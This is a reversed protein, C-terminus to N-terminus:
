RPQPRGGCPKCPNCPQPRCGCPQPRCGCPKCPQPRCGCHDDDDEEEFYDCNAEAEAIAMKLGNLYGELEEIEEAIKYASEKIEHLAKKCPNPRVCGGGCGCGPNVPKCGCAM